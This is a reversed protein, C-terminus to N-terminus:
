GPGVAGKGQGWAGEEVVEEATGPREGEGEAPAEWELHSRACQIWQEMDRVQNPLLRRQEAINVQKGVRERYIAKM